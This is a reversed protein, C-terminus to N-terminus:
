ESQQFTQTIAPTIDKRRWASLVIGLFIMNMVFGASDYSVFPMSIQQESLMSGMGFGGIMVLSLIFQLALMIVAALSIISYFHDHIKQTSKIMCYIFFLILAAVVIAVAIGFYIIISNIQGIGFGAFISSSTKTGAKGIIKATGLIQKNNQQVWKWNAQTGVVYCM